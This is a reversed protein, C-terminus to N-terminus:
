IIHAQFKLNIDVSKMRVNEGSSHWVILKQSFSYAVKLL